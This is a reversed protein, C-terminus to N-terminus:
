APATARGCGSRKWGSRGQGDGGTGAVEGLHRAFQVCREDGAAEGRGSLNVLVLGDPGLGTGVELAGVVRM